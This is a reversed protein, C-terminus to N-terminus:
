KKYITTKIQEIDGGEAHHVGRINGKAIMVEITAGYQWEQCVGEM